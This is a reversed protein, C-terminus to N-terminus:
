TIENKSILEGLGFAPGVKELDDPLPDLGLAIAYLSLRM